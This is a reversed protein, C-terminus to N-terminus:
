GSEYTKSRFLGTCHRCRARVCALRTIGARSRDQDGAVGARVLCVAGVRDDGGDGGFVRGSRALKGSVASKGNLRTSALGVVTGFVIGAMVMMMGNSVVRRVIDGATAGLAMRLGVERTGQSVNYAMVGYLGIAALLLALAGFVGLLAVSARQLGTTRDVQEWMTILEEPALDPDLMHIERVLAKRVEEAGLSTRIFIEDGTEAQRMALYAFM